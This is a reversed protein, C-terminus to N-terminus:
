MWVRCENSPHKEASPIPQMLCPSASFSRASVDRAIPDNFARNVERAHLPQQEPRIQRRQEGRHSRQANDNQASRLIKLRMLVSM